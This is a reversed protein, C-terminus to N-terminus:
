RRPSTRYRSRFPVLWHSVHYRKKSMLGSVALCTVLSTMYLKSAAKPDLLLEERSQEEVEIM